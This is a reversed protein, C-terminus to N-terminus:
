EKLSNVAQVQNLIDEKRFLRRIL